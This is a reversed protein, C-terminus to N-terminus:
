DLVATSDDESLVQPRTVNPFYKALGQELDTLFAETAAAHVQALLEVVIIADTTERKILAQAAQRWVFHRTLVQHQWAYAVEGPEVAVAEPADLSQFTDGERTRRLELDGGGIDAADFAGLPVIHRLSLAHLFDTLPNLRLPEPSKFARRVMSEIACPFKKGSIGLNRLADRWPAVLPHQQASGYTAALAGAARWSDSLQAEIEGNDTANDIDRVAATVIRMGPNAALVASGITLRM